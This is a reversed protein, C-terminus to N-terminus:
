KAMEIPLLRAFTATFASQGRALVGEAEGKRRLADVPRAGKLQRIPLRSQEERLFIGRHGSRTIAVFAGKILTRKGRDVMVSVGSKVQRHPYSSLAVPAGSMEIAWDWGDIVTGRPRRLTMASRVAKAKVRIEKRVRKSAESKMDRLATAGAKRLARKMAPTMNKPDLAILKSLDTEVRIV